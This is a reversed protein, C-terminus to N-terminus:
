ATLDVNLKVYYTERDASVIVIHRPSRQRRRSFRGLAEELMINPRQVSDSGCMCCTRGSNEIRDQKGVAM